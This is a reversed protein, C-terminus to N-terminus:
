NMVAHLISSLRVEDAVQTDDDSDEPRFLEKQKPLVYDEDRDDSAPSEERDDNQAPEDLFTAINPAPPAPSQRHLEAADSLLGLGDQDLFSQIDAVVANDSPPDVPLEEEVSPLPEPEPEIPSDVRTVELTPLVPEEV